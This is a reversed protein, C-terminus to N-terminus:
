PLLVSSSSLSRITAIIVFASSKVIIPCTLIFNIHNLRPLCEIVIRLRHIFTVVHISEPILTVVTVIISPPAATAIM